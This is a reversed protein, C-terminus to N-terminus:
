KPTGAANDLKGMRSTHITRLKADVANTHAQVNQRQFARATFRRSAVVAAYTVLRSLTDFERAM